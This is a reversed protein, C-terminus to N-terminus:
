CEAPKGEQIDRVTIILFSSFQGYCSMKFFALDPKKLDRYPKNLSFYFSYIQYNELTNQHPYRESQTGGVTGEGRIM